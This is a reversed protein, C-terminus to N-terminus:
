ARCATERSLAWYKMGKGPVGQSFSVGAGGSVATRFLRPGNARSPFSKQRHTDLSSCRLFLAVSPAVAFDERFFCFRRVPSRARALLLVAPSSQRKRENTSQWMSAVAVDRRRFPCRRIRDLGKLRLYRVLRSRLLQCM